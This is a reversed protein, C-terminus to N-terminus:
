CKHEEGSKLMRDMGGVIFTVYLCHITEQVELVTFEKEYWM